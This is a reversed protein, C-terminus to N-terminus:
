RGTRKMPIHYEDGFHGIMLTRERTAVRVILPISLFGRAAIRRPRMGHQASTREEEEAADVDDGKQNM